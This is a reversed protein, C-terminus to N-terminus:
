DLLRLDIHCMGDRYAQEIFKAHRRAEALDAFAGMEVCYKEGMDDIVNVCARLGTSDLVAETRRIGNFRYLFGNCNTVSMFSM